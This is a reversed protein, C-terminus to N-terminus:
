SFLASPARACVLTVLSQTPVPVRWQSRLLFYTSTRLTSTFALFIFRKCLPLRLILYVPVCLLLLPLSCSLGRVYLLLLLLYVQVYLVLLLLLYVPVYLLLLLFLSRLCRGCVVLWPPLRGGVPPM